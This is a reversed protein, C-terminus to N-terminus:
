THQRVPLHDTKAPIAKAFFGPWGWSFMRFESLVSKVKETNRM